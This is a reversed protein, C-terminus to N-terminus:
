AHEGLSGGTTTSAAVADHNPQEASDPPSAEASGEPPQPTLWLGLLLLTHIVWLLMARDIREASLLATPSTM